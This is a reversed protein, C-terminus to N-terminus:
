QIVLKRVLRGQETKVQLFYTGAEMEGKEIILQKGTFRISKIEKGLVDLVKITINKQEQTFTIATQSNFPNPYINIESASNNEAMGTTTINFCSSTDSCSSQTVIVAYSGNATATFSQGTQGVIPANGNTCNIWQYTASSANATITASSVSASTDISNVTLNTTVISDCGQYSALTDIYNGNATYTHVGVTVSQGECLSPSQTSTVPTICFKFVTGGNNAGGKSTMGYLFTGDSILSGNPWIGDAGFDLMKFYGTGNPMIKFLTGVDGTGGYYTMGYLFTGDSVLDGKPQAGNATGAFDLLKSYGTGDAMIKFIIGKNNTGGLQTMGYLFTGDSILSGFPAGGNISDFDLLKSYGTGNSMIKFVTGDNNIGGSGTMGYLFTGDSILSGNPQSGNATGAFDLLKSYGTGDPMIKFVVGKNNTGGLQTMGYLFTGDSVLSGNPYNGNANGSFDLLKSYGTGDPKIKFITGYNNTGGGQTMGYLFTGDSILSGFPNKGNALGTFDLLASYGTGDHELKFVTGIYSTGGGYSMGHLFTGDSVLTGNPSSGFAVGSFDYLKTYQAFGNFTLFQFTLIAFAVGTFFINSKKM